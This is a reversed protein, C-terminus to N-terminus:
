SVRAIEEYLAQLGRRDTVGLKHYARQRYTVISSLALGVEQSIEKQTRGVLLGASIEAERRSLSFGAELLQRAVDKLPPHLRAPMGGDALSVHKALAAMLLPSAAELRSVQEETFPGSQRARYASAFLRPVGVSYVTLRELVQAREYCARRYEPDTVGNWAQRVVHVTSRGLEAALMRRTIRDRQWYRQAYDLSATEAFDPINPHTGGSFLYRLKGDHAVQFASCLDNGTLHQLSLQFRSPFAPGGASLVLDSLAGITAHDLECM